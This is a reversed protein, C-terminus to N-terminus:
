ARERPGVAIGLDGLQRDDVTAPAGTLLCSSSTTKPFAIVDRLSTAGCLLMAIRDLGLAVGGHPPAGQALADLLFGFKAVAEDPGIGILEFVRAQLEREHIRISGGGIEFGNLVLDYAAARARWPDSALLPVDEALPATFPHHNAVYRDDERDYTFLPFDTVWLPAFRDSSALECARAVQLRLAGLVSSCTDPSADAVILLLDGDSARAAARLCAGGDGLHKSIPSRLGGSEARAAVLGAAGLARAQETLLEVGKRSFTQEHRAVDVAAVRLLRVAGGGAVVDHFAKFPTDAMASSVDEISLDFRLDPKDSGYRAMATAYTMTPFPTALEHGAAGAMAAVLPEVVARVDAPTVFSMEIDVQTFEPQRDARLDEDRFCRAVQFYRDYGAVMLLQKFLQPSQPLAFFRGPFVRSPVLYDRAGEPTSRTLMPTEIEIFGRADLCNRAAMTMKHRLALVRQMRPRRLDLHRHRLRLEESASTDDDVAFAPVEAQNHVRLAQCAIEIAGTPVDPNAASRMVVTGRIGIVFEGRLEKARALLDANRDEDFVVQTMGTRDRLDIFGLKGLDRVRAVWGCLVVTLGVHEARLEGCMHTRAMLTEEATTM